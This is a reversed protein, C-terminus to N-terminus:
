LLSNQLMLLIYWGSPWTIMKRKWLYGYKRLASLIIQTINRALQVLMSLSSPNKSPHVGVILFVDVAFFAFFFFSSFCFLWSIFNYPFCHQDTTYSIEYFLTVPKWNEGSPLGYSVFTNRQYLFSDLWLIKIRFFLHTQM